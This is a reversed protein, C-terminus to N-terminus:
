DGRGGRILRLPAASPSRGRRGTIEDPLRGLWIASLVQLEVDVLPVRGLWHPHAFPALTCLAQISAGGGAEVPAAFLEIGLAEGDASAAKLRAVFLQHHECVGDLARLLIRRYLRPWDAAVARGTLGHGWAQAIATGALRWRHRRQGCREIIGVWPLIPAIARLDIEDRRPAGRPGRLGNWHSFLARSVPHLIAEPVADDHRSGGPAQM